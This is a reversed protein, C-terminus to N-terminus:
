LKRNKPISNKYALKKKRFFECFKQKSIEIVLVQTTIPCLDGVM